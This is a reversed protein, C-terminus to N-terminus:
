VVVRVFLFQLVSLPIIYKWLFNVVEDVRLRAFVSRFLSLSFLTVLSKITFYVPHLLWEFGPIIPGLPGGLFLTAALSSLYFLEVDKTLRLLALKRGSFETLWGAVIETEAEPVDFPIRELEAQAASLFIIFSLINPGIILWGAKQAEVVGVISLSGTSVAVSAISLMLPIEYSLLQLMSREAGVISFRSPSSLGAYFFMISLLTMLTIAIILDGEFSVLGKHGSVPLFLSCTFAVALAFVPVCQFILTDAGEPTIDEKTLLKIFDAIPQLFGSPGTVWPGVRNQFTAYLKRDIWEYLFAILIIFLFGPFTFVSLLHELWM